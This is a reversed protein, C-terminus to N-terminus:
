KNYTSATWQLKWHLFNIHAKEDAYKELNPLALVTFNSNNGLALVIFNIHTVSFELGRSNRVWM